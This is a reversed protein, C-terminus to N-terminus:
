EIFDEHFPILVQQNDKTEVVMLEQSTRDDVDILTGLADEGNFVKFGELAKLGLQEEPNPVLSQSLMLQRGLLEKVAEDSDYWHLKMIWLTNSTFQIAELQFPVPKNQISLFIWDNPTLNIVGIGEHIQCKVWGKFGHVALLRGISILGTM